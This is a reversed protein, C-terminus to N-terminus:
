HSHTTTSGDAHTHTHAHHGIKKVTRKGGADKAVDALFREASMHNPASIKDASTVKILGDDLIEVTITDKKLGM